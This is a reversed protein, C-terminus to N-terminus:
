SHSLSILHFELVVILSIANDVMLCATNVLDLLPRTTAPFASGSGSLTHKYSLVTEQYIHRRPLASVNRIQDREKYVSSQLLSGISPVTRLFPYILAYFGRIVAWCVSHAHINAIMAIAKTKNM